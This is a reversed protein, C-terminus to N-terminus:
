RPKNVPNRDREQGPKQSVANAADKQYDPHHHAYRELLVEKTMGLFEAAEAPDAGNQMM